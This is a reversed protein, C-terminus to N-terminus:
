QKSIIYTDSLGKGYSRSMIINKGELSITFSGNLIYSWDFEATWPCENVFVIEQGSIHYSGRCLAPYKVVSSSGEFAKNTFTLRVESAAYKAGPSSRYFSGTYTGEELKFLAAEEQECAWLIFLIGFLLPLIKKM